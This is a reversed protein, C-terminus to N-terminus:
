LVLSPIRGRSSVAYGNDRAWARIGATDDASSSTGISTPQQRSTRAAAMFPALEARFDEAQQASLDIAYSHRDLGFSLTVDAPSGDLDSEFRVITKRVM